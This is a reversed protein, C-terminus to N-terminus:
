DLSKRAAGPLSRGLFQAGRTDGRLDTRVSGRRTSVRCGSKVPRKPRPMFTLPPVRGLGDHPREDNYTQLWEDTLARVQELSEFVYASLVEERYSRNFREICANQGPKGPQIYRLEINHGRCWDVFVEATLEPGNDVRLAVPRGHLDILQELIRVVRTSPITTGIEISLGERNGEDIV